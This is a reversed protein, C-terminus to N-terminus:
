IGGRETADLRGAPDQRYIECLVRYLEPAEHRLELPADFLCETAVAFFEAKSELGYDDLITRIRHAANHQLRRLEREMVTRWRDALEHNALPPAGDAADGELMDLIHAFEHFVLNQGEGGYTGGERLDEWSLVVSGHQWAEGLRASEGELMAGGGISMRSDAVYGTPYVLVSRVRRFLDPGEDFGLTLICAQGAIAVRMEDTLRLGGCGEWFRDAIFWRLDDRLRTQEPLSFSDYFPLHAHLYAEWAAPWPAALVKRRRRARLWRLVV